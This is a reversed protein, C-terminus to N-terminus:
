TTKKRRRLYIATGVIALSIAVAAVAYPLINLPQSLNLTFHVTTTTGAAVNVGTQSSSAYGDASVAVDYTGAVLEIIYDGTANTSVSSGGVTVRAGEIPNGTSADKV